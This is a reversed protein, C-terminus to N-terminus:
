TSSIEDELEQCKLLPTMSNVTSLSSEAAQYEVLSGNSGMIVVTPVDDDEKNIIITSNVEETAMPMGVTASHNQKGMENICVPSSNSLSSLQEPDLGHHPLVKQPPMCSSKIHKDGYPQPFKAAIDIKPDKSTEISSLDVHSSSGHLWDDLYSQARTVTGAHYPQVVPKGEANLGGHLSHIVNKSGGLGTKTSAVLNTHFRRTHGPSSLPSAPNSYASTGLRVGEQITEMLNNVVKMGDDTVSLQAISGMFPQTISSVASKTYPLYEPAAEDWYLDRELKPYSM